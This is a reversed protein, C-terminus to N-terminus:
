TSSGHTPHRKRAELVKGPGDRDSGYSQENADDPHWRAERRLSRLPGFHMETDELAARYAVDSQESRMLGSLGLVAAVGPQLVPAQSTGSDPHLPNADAMWSLDFGAHDGGTAWAGFTAGSNALETFRDPTVSDGLAPAAEIRRTSAADLASSQGVAGRVPDRWFSHLGPGGVFSEDGTSALISAAEGVAGTQGTVHASATSVAASVAPQIADNDVPVKAAAMGVSGLSFVAGLLPMRSLRVLEVLRPLKRDKAAHGVSASDVPVVPMAPLEFRLRVTRPRDIQDGRIGTVSAKHADLVAQEAAILGDRRLGCADALAARDLVVYATRWRASWYIGKLSGLLRRRVEHSFAVLSAAEAFAGTPDYIVDGSGLGVVFAELSRTAELASGRHMKVRVSADVGLATMRRSIDRSIALASTPWSSKICERAVHATIRNGSRATRSLTALFPRVPAASLATRLNDLQENRLTSLNADVATM